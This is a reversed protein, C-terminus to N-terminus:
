WPRWGPCEVRVVNWAIGCRKMRITATGTAALSRFTGAQLGTWSVAFRVTAYDREVECGTESVDSGTFVAVGGIFSEIAHSMEDRSVARGSPSYLEDRDARRMCGEADRGFLSYLFHGAFMTACAAQDPHFDEYVFSHTMGAIHVDDIEMEFLEEVIFRYAEAPPVTRDFHVAIAHAGLHDILTRLKGPIEGPRLSSPHPYSPNGAYTRVTTKGAGQFQREYEEVTDLWESIIEPPADSDDFSFRAGYKEELRKRKQENLARQIREQTDDPMEMEGYM